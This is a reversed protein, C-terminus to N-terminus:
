TPTCNALPTKCQLPRWRAVTRKTESGPRASWSDEGYAFRGGRAPQDRICRGCIADATSRGGTSEGCAPRRADDLAGLRPAAISEGTEKPPGAWVPAVCWVRRARASLRCELLEPAAAGRGVARCRLRGGAIMPPERSTGRHAWDCDGAAIRVLASLRHTWHGRPMVAPNITRV